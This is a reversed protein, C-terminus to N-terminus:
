VSHVLISIVSVDLRSMMTLRDITAIADDPAKDININNRVDCSLNRRFVSMMNGIIVNSHDTDSKIKENDLKAVGGESTLGKNRAAASVDLIM